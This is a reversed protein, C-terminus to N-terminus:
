RTGRGHGSSGHGRTGRGQGGPADHRPRGPPIISPKRSARAPTSTSTRSFCASKRRSKRPSVIWGEVSSTIWSSPRSPGNRRSGCWSAVCAPGGLDPVGDNGIASKRWRGVCQRKTAKMGCHSKRSKRAPAPRGSGSTGGAGALPPLPASRPGLARPRPGPSSAPRAARPGPPGPRRRPRAGSPPARSPRARPGRGRRARHVHQPEPQRPLGAVGVLRHAAEPRALEEGHEVPAAVPLAAVHDGLARELPDAPRPRGAKRSATAPSAGNARSRTPSSRSQSSTLSSVTRTSRSARQYRGPRSQM